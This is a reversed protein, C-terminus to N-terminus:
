TELEAEHVASTYAVTRPFVFAVNARGILMSISASDQLIQACACNILNLNDVKM